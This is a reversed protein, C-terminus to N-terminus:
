NGRTGTLVAGRTSDLLVERARVRPDDVVVEIPGPETRAFRLRGLWDTELVLAEGLTVRAGAVAAGASDRVDLSDLTWSGDPEWERALGLLLAYAEARLAGPALLAEEDPGSDVRAPSAYLAPCSAQQLAYLADEAAPPAALALSAFAAATSRAWHRGAPSSFYYGFRRARHGIRLYRDARFDESGQVREVESLAFDGARTLHVEAGAAALMAALIRASELNLHAARTGSGGVGAPDEGGGEPDLTVRRGHLIGGALPVFGPAGQGTWRRYGALRPVDIGGTSDMPLVAFGDRNLWSVARAPERTGPADRLPGGDPMARVFGSWPVARPARGALPGALRLTEPAARGGAVRESPDISVRFARARRPASRPASLARFYAWAVGDRAVAVTESPAFMRPGLSRIRVRHDEMSPVGRAGLLEVRVALLGGRPGVGAPWPAARLRTTGPAVAFRLRRERAAGVGALRVILRAEHDGAAWPEQPRWELRDGLREPRVARGDVELEALDFDGRVRARLQPDGSAFLSDESPADPDYAALEEIVPVPRAFYRALGIYLAEAELAQKEPLRLREEVAPNTIYSTETLLAPAESNRLVFYNGPVVKHPRIGVNRVLARHVDQAADLSPGDDGLKYYTQTENIDHAGAADANHHISLFLDPRFANALRVREALDARLTSDAVGRFDRDRDRTLFVEAGRVTLLDRLRLAVALNVEAETLGNVGLAGRFFGGHGPDLAIRRGALGSADVLALSDALREYGPVAYPRAPMPLPPGAPRRACGAGALLAIMIRLGSVVRRMWACPAVTMLACELLRQASGAVPAAPLM